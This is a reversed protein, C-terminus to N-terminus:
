GLIQKFMDDVSDAEYVRGSKIDELAKDLGSKKRVPTDNVISVGKMYEIVKKLNEKITPNEFALTLTDM